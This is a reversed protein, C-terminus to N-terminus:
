RPPRRASRRRGGRGPRPRRRGAAVPRGHGQAHRGAEGEARLAYTSPFLYGEPNGNAYSPLGLAATDKLAADFDATPTSRRTPWSRWSTPWGCARRSPSRRAQHHEEPRDPRRLADDAAMKKKLQYFGVQIDQRATRPARHVRRGLGVVEDGQPRPRHRDVTDGQKVEFLVKGHGPGSYDDAPSLHDKLYHFGKRVSSTRAASSSRWRWSCRWAAPSAASRRRRRSGGLYAPEYRDDVREDADRRRSTARRRSPM